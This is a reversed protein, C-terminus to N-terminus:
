QTSLELIAQAIREATQESLRNNSRKVSRYFTSTEVGAHRVAKLLDVQRMAAIDKLQESYTVILM